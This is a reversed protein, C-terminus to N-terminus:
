IRPRVSIGWTSLRMPWSAHEARSWSVTRLRSPRWCAGTPRSGHRTPTALSTLGLNYVSRAVNPHDPGYAAQVIGLAREFHARAGDLDGSERLVSGLYNHATAVDPHQPGYAAEFIRLAREHNAQACALDGQQQLVGGLSSVTRAVIPHDLGYATEVMGLAREFHARAGDLDGLDLLVYALNNLGTAVTPHDAGYVATNITVAQEYKARAGEPDGLERLLRGLNNITTAVVPHDPGYAAQGLRLAREYTAQAATFQSRGRFYLGVQSLLASTHLAATQLAEAHEAAVLAHPLLRQCIPWTQPWDSDYPFAAMVLGVAAAAWGRQEEPDLGNRVVHLVLRHVTVDDGIRKVLSYRSLAGMARDLEAISLGGLLVPVEEWETLTPGLLDWPIEDPGLYALLRLLAPAHPSRTAAEEVGLTWTTAVTHTYDVPQGETFLGTDTRLRDLYGALPLQEGECYAGAQELALPLDGLVEALQGAAATDRDGTRRRLLRVAEDRELVEVPLLATAQRRWAVDRSTVLLRGPGDPFLGTTQETPEANDAVLMWGDHEGLWRHVADLVVQQERAAAEPLGLPGALAALDAALTEPQEARLWWVV